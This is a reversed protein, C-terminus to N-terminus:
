VAEKMTQFDSIFEEVSLFESIYDITYSSDAHPRYYSYEAFETITDYLEWHSENKINNENTPNEVLRVLISENTYKIKGGNSLNVKVEAIQKGNLKMENLANIVEIKEM